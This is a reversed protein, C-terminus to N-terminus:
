PALGNMWKRPGPNADKNARSRLGLGLFSGALSGLFGLGPIHEEKGETAPWGDDPAIDKYAINIKARDINKDNSLYGIKPSGSGGDFDVDDILCTLSLTMGDVVVQVSSSKEMWNKGDWRYVKRAKAEVAFDAGQFPHNNMDDGVGEYVDIFVVFDDNPVGVDGGDINDYCQLIFSVQTDSTIITLTELDIEDDVAGENPDNGLNTRAGQALIKARTSLFILLIFLFFVRLKARAREPQSM